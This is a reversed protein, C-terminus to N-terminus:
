TGFWVSKEVDRGLQWSDATPHFACPNLCWDEEHWCSYLSMSHLDWIIVEHEGGICAVQRRRLLYRLVSERIAPLTEICNGNSTDWLHVM